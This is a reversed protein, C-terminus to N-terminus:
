WPYEGLSQYHVWDIDVAGPDATATTYAFLSPRAGKWWSFQIPTPVGIPEFSRGDDLSYFYRAQDGDVRIRLQIGAQSFAPGVARDPLHFFELRRESSSQVIAIGSASKEFIALGVHSGNEIASLDFRATFEFSNDQM